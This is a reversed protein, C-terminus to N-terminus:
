AGIALERGRGRAYLEVRFGGDLDGVPVRQEPLRHGAKIGRGLDIAARNEPDVHPKRVHDVRRDFGRRHRASPERAEIEVGDLVTGAHDGGVTEAFAPDALAEVVGVLDGVPHVAHLAPDGHDRVAIVPGQGGEPQHRLLPIGALVALHAVLADDRARQLHERIRVIRRVVGGNRHAIRPVRDAGGGVRHFRGVDRGIEVM